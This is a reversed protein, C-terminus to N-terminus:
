NLGNSVTLCVHHLDNINRFHIALLTFVCDILHVHQLGHAVWVDNGIFLWKHVLSAQANHHVVCIAAVQVGFDRILLFNALTLLHRRVVRLKSSQLGFIPSTRTFPEPLWACERDFSKVCLDWFESCIWSESHVLLFRHSQFQGREEVCMRNREFQLQSVRSGWDQFKDPFVTCSFTPYKTARICETHSPLKLVRM